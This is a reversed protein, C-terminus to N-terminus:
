TAAKEALALAGCIGARSGLGPPAIFADLGEHLEPLKLYGRLIRATESRV